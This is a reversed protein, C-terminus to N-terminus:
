QRTSYIIAFGNSELYEIIHPVGKKYIMIEYDDCDQFLDIMAAAENSFAKATKGKAETIFVTRDPEEPEQYGQVTEDMFRGLRGAVFYGFAFVALMMVALLIDEM